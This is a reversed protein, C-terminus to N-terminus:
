KGWIYLIYIYIYVLKSDFPIFVGLAGMATTYLIIDNAAYSLKTIQMSTIMDGVHYMCLQEMKFAAGNLYGSEWKFRSATPDDEAEADCNVPLRGVFFNGFKDAGCITDADLVTFCTTWRPIM